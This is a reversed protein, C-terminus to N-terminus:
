IGYVGLYLGGQGYMYMGFGYILGGGNLYM